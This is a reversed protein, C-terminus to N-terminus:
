AGGGPTSAAQIVDALRGRADALEARLTSIQAFRSAALIRADDREARLSSPEHPSTTPVAWYWV